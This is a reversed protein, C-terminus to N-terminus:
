CCCYCYYCCNYYYTCTEQLIFTSLQKSAYTVKCCSSCEVSLTYLVPSYVCTRRNMYEVVSPLFAMFVFVVEGSDGEMVAFRHAIFQLCPYCVAGARFFPLMPLQFLEDCCIHLPPKLSELPWLFYSVERARALCMWFCCVGCYTAPTPGAATTPTATPIPSLTTLTSPTHTPSTTSTTIAATTTATTATLLLVQQFLHQHKAVHSHVVTQECLDAQWM